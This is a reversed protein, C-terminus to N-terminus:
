PLHSKLQAIVPDPGSGPNYGTIRGLEKGDTDIVILTPYGDVKYTAQLQANQKQVDEALAHEHPFDVKVCVFNDDTFKQFSETSFVEKELLQCYGCWDSGTFDLLILKHDRKAMEVARDYHSIWAEVSQLGLLSAMFVAVLLATFKQKM